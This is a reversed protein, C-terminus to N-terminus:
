GHFFPEEMELLHSAKVVTNKQALLDIYVAPTVERSDDPCTRRV